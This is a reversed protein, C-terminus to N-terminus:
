IYLTGAGINSGIADPQAEPDFRSSRICPRSMEISIEDNMQTSTTAAAQSRSGSLLPAFAPSPPTAPM